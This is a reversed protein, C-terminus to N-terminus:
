CDELLGTDDDRETVVKGDNEGVAAYLMAAVEKPQVDVAVGECVAVIPRFEAAQAEELTMGWMAQIQDDNLARNEVDEETVDDLIANREVADMVWRDPATQAIFYAVHGSHYMDASWFGSVVLQWKVHESPRASELSGGFTDCLIKM